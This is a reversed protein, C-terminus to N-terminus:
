VSELSFNKIKEDRTVEPGRHLESVYCVFHSFDQHANDDESWILLVQVNYQIM